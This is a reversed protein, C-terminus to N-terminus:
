PADQLIADIMVPWMAASFPGSGLAEPNRGARINAKRQLQWQEHFPGDAADQMDDDPERVALPVARAIDFACTQEDPILSDWWEDSTHKHDATVFAVARAAKELSGM